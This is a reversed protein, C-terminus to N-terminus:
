QVKFNGEFRGINNVSINVVDTVKWKKIGRHNLLLYVWLGATLKQRAVGDGPGVQGSASM